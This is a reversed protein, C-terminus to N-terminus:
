ITSCEIALTATQRGILRNNPQRRQQRLQDGDYENDDYTNSDGGNNNICSSGKCVCGAARNTVRENAVVHAAM